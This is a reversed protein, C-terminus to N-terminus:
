LFNLRVSCYTGALGVESTPVVTGGHQQLELWKAVEHDIWYVRRVHYLQAHLIHYLQAHISPMSSIHTVPRVQTELSTSMDVVRGVEVDGVDDVMADITTVDDGQVM